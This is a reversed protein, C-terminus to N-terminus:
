ASALAARRQNCAERKSSALGEIFRKAASGDAAKVIKHIWWHWAGTATRHITPLEGPKRRNRNHPIAEFAKQDDIARQIDYSKKMNM